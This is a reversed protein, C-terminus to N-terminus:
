RKKAKPQNGRFMGEMIKTINNVPSGDPLVGGYLAKVVHRAMYVYLYSAALALFAGIFDEGAFNFFYCERVGLKADTCGRGILYVVHGVLWGGGTFLAHTITILFIDLM